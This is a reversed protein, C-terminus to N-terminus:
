IWGSASASCGGGGRAARLRGGGRAPAARPLPADNAERTASDMPSGDSVVILLRRGESRAQLRACAWDVAEGDIGERFLDPKLLAAIDPRARRWPTDADKFVM